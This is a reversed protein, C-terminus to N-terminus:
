KKRAEPELYPLGALEFVHRESTAPIIKGTKLDTFGEGYANFGLGHKRASECLRINLEMPGTRVVLTVWWKSEPCAFLDVPIGSPQHIALKNKPGWTFVSRVNPRKELVGLQLLGEIREVALDTDVSDFLGDKRSEIRPVFVLEVDGVEHAGRRLSGCVLLRDPMTGPQILGGLENAVALAAARPYKQNAYRQATPLNM